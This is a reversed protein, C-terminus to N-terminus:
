VLFRVEDEVALKIHIVGGPDHESAGRSVVQPLDVEGDVPAKEGDDDRHFRSWVGMLEGERGSLGPNPFVRVGQAGADLKSM